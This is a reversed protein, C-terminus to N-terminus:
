CCRSTIMNANSHRLTTKDDNNKNILMRVAGLADQWSDYQKNDFAIKTDSRTACTASSVVPASRAATCEAPDTQSESM